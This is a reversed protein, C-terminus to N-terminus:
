LGICGTSGDHAVVVAPNAARVPLSWKKVSPQLALGSVKKDEVVELGRRM